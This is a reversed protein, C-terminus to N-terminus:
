ISREEISNPLHKIIQPPQNSSNHIYLLNNNPKRYPRYTSNRLSITAGLLEAITKKTEIEIYCICM